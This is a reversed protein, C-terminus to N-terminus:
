YCKVGERRPIGDEGDWGATVDAIPAAGTLNKGGLNGRISIIIHDFVHKSLEGSEENENLLERSYDEIAFM